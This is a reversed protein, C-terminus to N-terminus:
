SGSVFFQSMLFFGSAPFSQLCSSFPTVSSSITPHCGSEISMLKLLSWSNTIPFGPTSCDMADCITLCLQVVSSFQVSSFQYTQKLNLQAERTAWHYLIQRGICSHTWDRLQSSGRSSSIADWALIRAQFIEHVSFNCLSPWVQACPVSVTNQAAGLIFFLVFMIQAIGMHVRDHFWLCLKELYLCTKPFNPFVSIILLWPAVKGKGLTPQLMVRLHHHPADKPKAENFHSINM